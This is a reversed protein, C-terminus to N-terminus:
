AQAVFQARHKAAETAANGGDRQGNEGHGGAARGVRPKGAEYRLREARPAPHRAQQHGVEDDRNRQHGHHGDAQGLEPEIAPAAGRARAEVHPQHQDAADEGDRRRDDDGDDQRHQDDAEGVEDHLWRLGGVLRRPGDALRHPAGALLLDQVVNPGNGRRQLVFADVGHAVRRRRLHHQLAQDLSARDDLRGHEIGVLAHDGLGLCRVRRAHAIGHRGRVKEPLGDVLRPRYLDFRGGACVEDHLEEDALREEQRGAVGDVEPDDVVDLADLECAREIRLDFRRQPAALEDDEHDTAGDGEQHQQRGHPEGDHERGAQGFRDAAQHHRGLAHAAAIEAGTHLLSRGVVLQTLEGTGEVAHGALDLLLAAIVAANLALDSQYHARDTGIALSGTRAIVRRQYSVLAM